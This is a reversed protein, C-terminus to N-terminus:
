ASAALFVDLRNAPHVAQVSRWRVVAFRPPNSQQDKSRIKTNLWTFCLTTEFRAIENCNYRSIEHNAECDHLWRHDSLTQSVNCRASGRASLTCTLVFGVEHLAAAGGGIGFRRRVFDCCISTDGQSVSRPSAVEPFRSRELVTVREVQRSLAEAVALGGIGAGISIAHGFLEM